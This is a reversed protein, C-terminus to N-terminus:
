LKTALKWHSIAAIPPLLSHCRSGDHANTWRTRENQCARKWLLGPGSLARAERDRRGSVGHTDQDDFVVGQKCLSQGTDKFSRSV